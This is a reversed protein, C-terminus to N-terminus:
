NTYQLVTVLSAGLHLLMFPHTSEAHSVPVKSAECVGCTGIVPLKIKTGNYLTLTGNYPYLLSIPVNEGKVVDDVLVGGSYKNRYSCVGPDGSNRGYSSGPQDSVISYHLCGVGYTGIPINGSSYFSSSDDKPISNYTTERMPGYRKKDTVTVLCNFPVPHEFNYEYQFSSSTNDTGIMVELIEDYAYLVGECEYVTNKGSYVCAERTGSYFIVHRGGSPTTYRYSVAEITHYGASSNFFGDLLDANSWQYYGKSCSTNCDAKSMTSYTYTGNLGCVCNNALVTAPLLLVIVIRIM